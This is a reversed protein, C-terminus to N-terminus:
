TWDLSEFITGLIRYRASIMTSYPVAFLGWTPPIPNAAVHLRTISDSTPNHFIDIKKVSIPWGPSITFESQNITRHCRAWETLTPDKHYAQSHCWLTSPDDHLPQLWSWWHYQDHLKSTHPPSCNRKLHLHWLQQPQLLVSLVNPGFGFFIKVKRIPQNVSCSTFINPRTIPKSNTEDFNKFM